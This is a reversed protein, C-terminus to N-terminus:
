FKIGTFKDSKKVPTFSTVKSKSTKEIANKIYQIDDEEGRRALAYEYKSAEDMALAYWDSWYHNWAVEGDLGHSLYKQKIEDDTACNSVDFEDIPFKLADVKKKFSSKGYSKLLNREKLKIDLLTTVERLYFKKAERFIVKTITKYYRDEDNVMKKPVSAEVLTVNYKSLLGNLESKFGHYNAVWHDKAIRLKGLEVQPTTSSPSALKKEKKSAVDSRNLNATIAGSRIGNVLTEQDHHTLEYLTFVSPPLKSYHVKNSLVSNDSIKIYKSIHGKSFTLGNEFKSWLKSKNKVNLSDKYDRAEKLLKGIAIISGVAIGQANIQQEHNQQIKAGYDDFVDQYSMLELNLKCKKM